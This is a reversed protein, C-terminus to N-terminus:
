RKRQRRRSMEQIKEGAMSGGLAGAAGAAGSVAGTAYIAPKIEKVLSKKVYEGIKPPWTRDLYDVFRQYTKLREIFPKNKPAAKKFKGMFSKVIGAPYKSVTKWRLPDVRAIKEMEDIFGKYIIDDM